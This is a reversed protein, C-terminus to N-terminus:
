EALLDVDEEIIEGFEPAVSMSDLKDDFTSGTDLSISTGLPFTLQQGAEVLSFTIVAKLTRTGAIIYQKKGELQFIASELTDGVTFSIPEGVQDYNNNQSFFGDFQIKSATAVGTGDATSFYGFLRNRVTILGNPGPPFSHEITIVADNVVVDNSVINVGHIDLTNQKTNNFCVQPTKGAESAEISFGEYDGTVDICAEGETKPTLTKGQIDVTLAQVLSPVFYLYMAITLAQKVKM